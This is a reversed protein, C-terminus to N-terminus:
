SQVHQLNIFCQNYSDIDAVVCPAWMDKAHKIVDARSGGIVELVTASDVDFMAREDLIAHDAMQGLPFHADM